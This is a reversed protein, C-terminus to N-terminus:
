KKIAEILKQASSIDLTVLEGAPNEFEAEMRLKNDDDAYTASLFVRSTLADTKAKFFTKDLRIEEGNKRTISLVSEDKKHVQLIYGQPLKLEEQVVVEGFRKIELKGNAFAFEVEMPNRFTGKTEAEVRQAISLEEHGEANETNRQKDFTYRFNGEEVM